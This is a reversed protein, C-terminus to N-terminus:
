VVGGYEIANLIERVKTGGYENTAAQMPSMGDLLPHAKAMWVPGEGGFVEAAKVMLASQRVFRETVATDLPEDKGKRSLTSPSLGLGDYFGRKPVKAVILWDEIAQTKLGQVAVLAAIDLDLRPGAESTKFIRARASSPKGGVANDSVLRSFAAALSQACSGDAAGVSTKRAVVAKRSPGSRTFPTSVHASAM